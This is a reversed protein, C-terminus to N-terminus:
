VWEDVLIGREYIMQMGTPFDYRAHGPRKDWTSVTTPRGEPTMEVMVLRFPNDGLLPRDATARYIEAASRPISTRPPRPPIKAIPSPLYSIRNIM